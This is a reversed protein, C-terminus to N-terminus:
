RGAVAPRAARGVEHRHQHRHAAAARLESTADRRTALEASAALLQEIEEDSWEHARESDTEAPARGLDPQSVPEGGTGRRVALALTGSLPKLYNTISSASLGRKPRKPDIAHLGERELDRVLKAIEDESVAAIQWDGFRPLLVNDLADRYGRRTWAGVRTKQAFWQELLEGCTIKAPVVVETGSAKRSRLDSQLALAEQLTKGASIYKSRWFVYYTRGGGNERYSIGRHKTKRREDRKRARAALDQSAPDSM